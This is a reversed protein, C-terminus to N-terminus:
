MFIDERYMRRYEGPTMGRCAYYQKYFGSPNAYGLLAAIEEMSLDTGALLESAKDTRYERVTDSFTKGTKAAILRGAYAASYGMRSALDALSARAINNELYQALIEEIYPDGAGRGRALEVFLLTLCGCVAADRWKRERASEALLRTVLYGCQEDTDRLLLAGEPAGMVRRGTLDYLEPPLIMKLIADGPGSRAVSHAVGPPVICADGAHMVTESGEIYQRCTGHCVYIVEYFEHKHTYPRQSSTHKKISFGDARRIPIVPFDDPMGREFFKMGTIGRDRAAAILEDANAFERRVASLIDDESASAKTDEREHKRLIASVNENMGNESGQKELNYHIYIPFILRIKM